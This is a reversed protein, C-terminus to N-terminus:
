SPPQYCQGVLCVLYECCGTPSSGIQCSKGAKGCQPKPNKDAKTSPAGLVLAVLSAVFAFTAFRM